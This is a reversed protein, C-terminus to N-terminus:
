LRMKWRGLMEIDERGSRVRDLLADREPDGKPEMESERVSM